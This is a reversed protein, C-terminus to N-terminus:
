PYAEEYMKCECVIPEDRPPGDKPWDKWVCAGCTGTTMHYSMPHGCKCLRRARANVCETCRVTTNNGFYRALRLEDSYVYAVIKGCHGCVITVAMKNPM